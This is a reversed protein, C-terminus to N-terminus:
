ECPAAEARKANAKITRDCLDIADVLQSEKVGGPYVRGMLERQKDTLLSVRGALLARTNAEIEARVKASM